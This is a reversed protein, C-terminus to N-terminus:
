SDLATMIDDLTGRSIAHRSSSLHFDHEPLTVLDDDESPRESEIAFFPIPPTAGRSTPDISTINCNHMSILEDPLTPSPAAELPRPPTVVLDQNISTDTAASLSKFSAESDGSDIRAASRQHPVVSRCPSSTPTHLQRVDELSTQIELIDEEDEATLPPEAKGDVVDLAAGLDMTAGLDLIEGIDDKKREERVSEELVLKDLLTEDVLDLLDEDKNTGDAKEDNAARVERKQELESKVEVEAEPVIEAEILSTAGADKEKDAVNEDGHGNGDAKVNAESDKDNENENEERNKTITTREADLDEKAETEKEKHDEVANAVPKEEGEVRKENAGVVKEAEGDVIYKDKDSNCKEVLKEETEMDTETKQSEKKETLKEPMQAKQPSGSKSGAGKKLKEKPEQLEQETESDSITTTVSIKKRKKPVPTSKRQTRPLENPVIYEEDEDDNEPKQDDELRLSALGMVPVSMASRKPKRNVPSGSSGNCSRRKDKGTPTALLIDELVNGTADVRQLRTPKPSGRRKTSLGLTSRRQTSSENSGLIEVSESFSVSLNSKRPRGKTPCKLTKKAKCVAGQMVSGRLQQDPMKVRNLKVMCGFFRSGFRDILEQRRLQAAAKSTRPQEETTATAALTQKLSRNKGSNQVLPVKIHVKPKKPPSPTEPVDSTNPDKRPRGRKRSGPMPTSSFKPTSTSIATNSPSPPFSTIYSEIETTTLRKLRVVVSKTLQSASAPQHLDAFMKQQAKTKPPISHQMSDDGDDMGDKDDSDHDNDKDKDKDKDKGKPGKDEDAEKTLERSVTRKLRVVFRKCPEVSADLADVDSHHSSSTAAAAAMASPPQPSPTEPLKATSSSSDRVRLPPPTAKVMDFLEM